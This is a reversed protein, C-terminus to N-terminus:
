KIETRIAVTCVKKSVISANANRISERRLKKPLISKRLKKVVFRTLHDRFVEEIKIKEMKSQYFFFKVAGHEIRSRLQMTDDHGKIKREKRERKKKKQADLGISVVELEKFKAVRPM